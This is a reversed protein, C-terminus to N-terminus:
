PDEKVCPWRWMQICRRQLKLVDYGDLSWLCWTRGRSVPPPVCAALVSPSIAAKLALVPCLQDGSSTIRHRPGGGPISGPVKENRTLRSIASSGQLLLSTATGAGPTIRQYASCVPNLPRVQFKLITGQSGFGGSQLVRKSLRNDEQKSAFIM